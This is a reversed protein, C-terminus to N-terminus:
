CAESAGRPWQGSAYAAASPGLMRCRGSAGGSAPGRVVGRRRMTGAPGTHQILGLAPGLPQPTTMRPSEINSRAPATVAADHPPPAETEDVVLTADEVKVPAAVESAVEVVATADVDVAVVVCGTVVEVEVGVVLVVSCGVVVVGAVVLLVVM